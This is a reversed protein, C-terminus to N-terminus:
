QLRKFVDEESVIQRFDLPDDPHTKMGAARAHLRM